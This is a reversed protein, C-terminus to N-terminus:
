VYIGILCFRIECFKPPVRVICKLGRLIPHVRVVCGLGRLIPHVRTICQLGRLTPHVGFVYEDFQRM